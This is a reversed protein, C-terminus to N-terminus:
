QNSLGKFKGAQHDNFVSDLIGNIFASSDDTSFEKAIEVAETISVKPPVDEIYLLESIALRLILKDVLTIRGMEWNKSRTQILEDCFTSNKIVLRALKGAYAIVDPVSGSETWETLYALTGGPDNGSLEWAYLAQLASIRSQRKEKRNM